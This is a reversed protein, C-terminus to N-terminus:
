AGAEEAGRGPSPEWLCVVERRKFERRDGKTGAGVPLVHLPDLYPRPNRLTSEGVGALRAVGAITAGAALLRGCEAAKGPTMVAGGRGPRPAYFSGPGKQDLQRTWHLLTRHAIGLGSVEVESARVHGHALLTALAFRQGAADTEPHSFYSDSGVFYTDRGEKKLV